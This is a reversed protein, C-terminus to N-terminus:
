VFGKVPIPFVHENVWAGGSFDLYKRGQMDWVHMGEGRELVIPPRNYVPLLFQSKQEVLRRVDEPVEDEPHTVRVYEM